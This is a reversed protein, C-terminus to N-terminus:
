VEKKLSVIIKNIDGKNFWNQLPFNIIREAAEATNPLETNLPNHWIRSCFIKEKRLEKILDDRDINKPVLASLYTFHNDELCPVEFNLSKFEKRLFRGLETRKIMIPRCNDLYHNLVNLSHQPARRPTSFKVKKFQFFPIRFKESFTAWSPFLRIFKILNSIKLSPKNLGIFPQKEGVFMGGGLVPLFKPFSFILCDGIQSHRPLNPPFHSCDEIIKLKYKKALKLIEDMENFLGYTHSVLIAKARKKANKEIESLKINFTGLDIDLYIPEIKYKKFIPEFVNCLYAPVLMKSNRLDLEKIALQFASRASNTFTIEKDPFYKFLRDKLAVETTPRLFSLLNRINFKLQPFTFYM